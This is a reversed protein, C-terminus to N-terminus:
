GRIALLLEKINNLRVEDIAEGIDAGKLLKQEANLSEFNTARMVFASRKVSNLFESKIICELVEVADEIREVDKFRNKRLGLTTVRTFLGLNM